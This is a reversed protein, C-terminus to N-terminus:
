EGGLSKKQYVNSGSYLGIVAILIAAFETGDLKDTLIFVYTTIFIVLLALLFKRGVYKKVM